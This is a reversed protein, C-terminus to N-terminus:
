PLSPHAASLGNMNFREGSATRKGHHRRGYWSASGTESTTAPLTAEAVSEADREPEALAELQAEPGAAPEDAAELAASEAGPAGRAGAPRDLTPRPGSRECAALLVLLFLAIPWIPRLSMPPM